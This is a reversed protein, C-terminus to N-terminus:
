HKINKVVADIMTVFTNIQWIETAGQVFGDYFEYYKLQSVELFVTVSVIIWIKIICCRVSLLKRFAIRDLLCCFPAVYM